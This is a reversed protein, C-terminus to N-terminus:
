ARKFDPITQSHQACGHFGGLMLLTNFFVDKVLSNLLKDRVQFPINLHLARM